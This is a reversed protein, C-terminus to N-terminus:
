IIAFISPHRNTQNPKLPKTSDFNAWSFRAEELRDNTLEIM